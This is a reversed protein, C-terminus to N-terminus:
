EQAPSRFQWGDINFGGLELLVYDTIRKGSLLMDDPSVAALANRLLELFRSDPFQQLLYKRAAEEPSFLCLYQQSVAAVPQGLFRAYIEYVRRLLGFYVYALDPGPNAAAAQLNDLNDWLGYKNLEVATDSLPKFEKALWQRAEDQLQVITGTNDFIPLGTAFQTAAHACNDSYDDRFYRRIQAPPNAFYEILFGQVIRNGRERWGTGEALIIHLDIDSHESPSGTVFSGCALAAVCYDQTRWDELFLNVATRWDQM